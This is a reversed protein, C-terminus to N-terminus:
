IAPIAQHNIPRIRRYGQGPKQLDAHANSMPSEYSFSESWM